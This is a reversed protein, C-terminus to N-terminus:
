QLKNWAVWSTETGSTSTITFGSGANLTVRLFGQTGGASMVSVQIISNSTISTDSVTVTGSSLQSIGWSKTAVSIFVWGRGPFRRFTMIANPASAFNALQPFYFGNDSVNKHAWTIVSNPCIITIEQGIAGDTLTNMTTPGSNAFFVNCLAMSMGDTLAGQITNATAQQPYNVFSRSYGDVYIKDGVDSNKNASISINSGGGIPFATKIDANTGALHCSSINGISQIADIYIANQTAWSLTSCINFWGGYTGTIRVGAGKGDAAGLGNNEFYCENSLNLGEVNEAWIGATGNNTNAVRDNSYGCFEADFHDFDIGLIFDTDTGNAYFGHSGSVYSRSNIVQMHNVSAGSVPHINWGYLTSNLIEVTDFVTLISRGTVSIGIPFYQIFLNKFHNSDNIQTTSISSIAPTTGTAVGGSNDFGLDEIHDDVLPGNMNGISIVPANIAPTLRTARKGKGRITIGSQTLVINCKILGRPCNIVGGASGNIHALANIANAFAASSDEVGSVDVTGFDTLDVTQLNKSAQTTAVAGTFPAKYGVMEAGQGAGTAALNAQLAEASPTLAPVNILSSGTADWALAANPTPTPITMSASPANRFKLSRDLQEQQQQDIMTLRDFVNEHIEPFFAGQNRISTPQTLDVIRKVTVMGTAYAQVTTVSGGSTGALTVSYDSNQNLLTENGDADTLTVTLDSAANVPFSFPFSTTVGNCPFDARSLTTSVTM